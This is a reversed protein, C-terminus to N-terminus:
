YQTLLDHVEQSPNSFRVTKSISLDLPTDWYYNHITTDAGNELLLKAIDVLKEKYDPVCEGIFEMSYCECNKQHHRHRSAAHLATGYYNSYPQCNILERRDEKSLPELYTKVKKLNGDKVAEFFNEVFEVNDCYYQSMPPVNPKNKYSDLDFASM